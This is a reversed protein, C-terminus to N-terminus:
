PAVNLLKIKKGAKRCVFDIDQNFIGLNTREVLTFRQEVLAVLAIKQRNDNLASDLNGLMGLIVGRHGDGRQGWACGKALHSKDIMFRSGGRRNGTLRRGDKDERPM